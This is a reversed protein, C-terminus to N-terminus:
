AEGDQKWQLREPTKTQKRRCMGLCRCAVRHRLSPGMVSFLHLDM